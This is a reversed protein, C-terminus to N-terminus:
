FLRKFQKALWLPLKYPAYRLPIDIWTPKRVIAKQHSFLEFSHKGHYAGIGSQGVGGFPLEKNAIQMVADNIVGGGFGYQNLIRKQFKRKRSFVYLSLSKEYTNITNQIDLETRYSIIPLIPGFIEDAMLASDLPPEDVLTPSVYRDADVCVGGFVIKQGDLKDKLSHYHKNTAIRAYDPSKQIDDGYFKTIQHTLAKVLRDKVKEHVLIYDPAVCTQGANMFKSWVIRKATVKIASSEDVICPNKGGLELTVPTLHEAAAKYVIKAVNSSGTFFIYDWREALLATSAPVGGEVVSVYEKPFVEQMIKTIIASTNPSLESPKLVATNGAALAGILPSLTLLIPYNWPSIILINGYPESHIWDSSPFNAWTFDVRKPKAWLELRNVMYKLESLVLQTETALTEFAPKKFDKDLADCIADEHKVLAKQLLKLYKIRFKVNKTQQSEFFTRQDKVLEKVM